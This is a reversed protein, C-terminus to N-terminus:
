QEPNVIIRGCHECIVLKKCSAIDILRQPTITSFCGGCAEENYVPVVALHNCVSARIRDYASLTREDIKAACADRKERLLEEEKSTSEVITSLEEKKAALDDERTAIKDNLRELEAKKEEIAERAEGIHKEAIARLLGQNELEKNISDYERSNTINELQGRYKEIDADLDVIQQRAEEINQNFGDIVQEIHTYKAKLGALEDELVAVEAPLEGRLQVLEEIANDAKQLEYLVKLKEQTSQETEAFSKQLSVFTEREDIPTQVKTIKKTTAM